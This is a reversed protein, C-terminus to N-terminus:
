PRWGADPNRADEDEVEVDLAAARGGTDAAAARELATMGDDPESEIDPV